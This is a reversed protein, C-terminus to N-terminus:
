DFRRQVAGVLNGLTSTCERAVRVLDLLFSGYSKLWRIPWARVQGLIAPREGHGRSAPGSGCLGESGAWRRVPRLQLQTWFDHKLNLYPSAKEARIFNAVDRQSKAKHDLTCLKM